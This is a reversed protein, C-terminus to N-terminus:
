RYSWLTVNLFYFCQYKNNFASHIGSLCLLSPNSPFGTKGNLNLYEMIWLISLCPHKHEPSLPWQLSDETMDKDHIETWQIHALLQATMEKDNIQTCRHSRTLWSMCKVLFIWPQWAPLRGQSSVTLADIFVWSMPFPGAPDTTQLCPVLMARMMGASVVCGTVRSTWLIISLMYM